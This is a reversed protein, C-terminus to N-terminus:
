KSENPDFSHHMHRIKWKGSVSEVVFTTRVGPQPAKSYRLTLTICAMEKARFVRINEKTLEVITGSDLFNRVKEEHSSYNHSDCGPHNDYFVFSDDDIHLSRFAEIDRNYFSCNYREILDVFPVLEDPDKIEV